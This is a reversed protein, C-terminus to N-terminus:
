SHVVTGTYPTAALEENALEEVDVDKRAASREFISLATAIFALGLQIAYERMLEGNGSRAALGATLISIAVVLILGGELVYPNAQGRFMARFRDVFYWAFAGAVILKVGGFFAALKILQIPGFDLARGIIFIYQARFADDLGYSPSTLIRVADFGWFLSFYLTVALIITTTTAGSIKQM